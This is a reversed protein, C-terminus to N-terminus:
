GLFSIEAGCPLRIPSPRPAWNAPGGHTRLPPSPQAGVESVLPGFAACLAVVKTKLEDDFMGGIMLM